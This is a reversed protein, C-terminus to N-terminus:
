KEGFIVDIIDELCTAEEIMLDQDDKCDCCLGGGNDWWLNCDCSKCRKVSTYSM